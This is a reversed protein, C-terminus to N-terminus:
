AWCSRWRLPLRSCAPPFFPRKSSPPLFALSSQGARQLLQVANLAGHSQALVYVIVIATVGYLFGSNVNFEKM